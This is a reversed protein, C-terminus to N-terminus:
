RPSIPIEKDDATLQGSLLEQLALVPWLLGKVVSQIALPIDIFIEMMEPTKSKNAAQLYSRGSWGIFGAIYFFIGYAIAIDVARNLSLPLHPLGEEGCSL